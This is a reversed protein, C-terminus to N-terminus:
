VISSNGCGCSIYGSHSPVFTFIVEKCLMTSLLFFNWCYALLHCTMTNYKEPQIFPSSVAQTFVKLIDTMLQVGRPWAAHHELHKTSSRWPNCNVGPKTLECFLQRRDETQARM